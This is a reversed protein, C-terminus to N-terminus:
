ARRKAAYQASTYRKGCIKQERVDQMNALVPAAESDMAIVFNIMYANYWFGRAM